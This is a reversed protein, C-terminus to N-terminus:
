LTHLKIDSKTRRFLAGPFVSLCLAITTSDLAYVTEDLEFGFDDDQYLKRAIDILILVFDAYIRWDSNENVDAFTRRSVHGRIGMHYPKGQMSRLCVEIDRLSERYTIQAFSM